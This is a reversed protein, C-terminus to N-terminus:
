YTMLKAGRTGIHHVPYTLIKLSKIWGEACWFCSKILVQYKYPHVM